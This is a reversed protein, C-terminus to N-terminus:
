IYIEQRLIPFNQKDREQEAQYSEIVRDEWDSIWEDAEEFTSNMGQLINKIKTM